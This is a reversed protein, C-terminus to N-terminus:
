EGVAREIIHLPLEPGEAGGAVGDVDDLLGGRGRVNVALAANVQLREGRRAVPGLPRLIQLRRGVAGEIGTVLARVGIGLRAIDLLPPM